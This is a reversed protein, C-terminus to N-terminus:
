ADIYEEEEADYRTKLSTLVSDWIEKEEMGPAALKSYLERAESYLLGRAYPESEGACYQLIEEPSPPVNVADEDAAADVLPHLNVRIEPISLNSFVQRVIVYAATSYILAELVEFM